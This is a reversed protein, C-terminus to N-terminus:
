GIMDLPPLAYKSLVEGELVGIEAIADEYLQRGNLTLGGPLQVNNYKILNQGWQKKM